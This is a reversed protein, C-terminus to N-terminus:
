KQEAAPEPDPLSEVIDCLNCHLADCIKLLVELSVNKDKNLNALTSPSIGTMRKLDAKKLKKDILKYWLKKYSVIMTEGLYSSSKIPILLLIDYFCVVKLEKPVIKRVKRGITTYM